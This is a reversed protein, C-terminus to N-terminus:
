NDDDHGKELEELEEPTMSAMLLICAGILFRFVPTAAILIFLVGPHMDIANCKNLWGNKIISPGYIKLMFFLIIMWVVISALYMKFM